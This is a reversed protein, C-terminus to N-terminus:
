TKKDTCFELIHMICKFTRQSQIKCSKKETISNNTQHASNIKLIQCFKKPTSRIKIM